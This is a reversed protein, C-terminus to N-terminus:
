LCLLLLRLAISHRSYYHRLHEHNLRCGQSALIYDQLNRKNIANVSAQEAERLIQEASSIIKHDEFIKLFNRTTLLYINDPLIYTKQTVDKDREAQFTDRQAILANFKDTTLTVTKM